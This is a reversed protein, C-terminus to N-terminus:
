TSFFGSPTWASTLIGEPKKTFMSLKEAGEDVLVELLQNADRAHGVDSSRGGIRLRVSRNFAPVFREFSLADPRSRWQRQFFRPTQHLAVYLMVVVDAQVTRDAVDRRLVRKRANRM